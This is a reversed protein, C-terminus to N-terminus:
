LRTFSVESILTPLGLNDIYWKIQGEIYPMSQAENKGHYFPMAHGHVMDSNAQVQKGTFALGSGSADSMVGPRDWDESIAVPVGYSNM